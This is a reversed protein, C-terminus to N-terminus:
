QTYQTMGEIALLTKKMALGSRFGTLKGNKGIVRHCPIVILVPNRGIANAVARVSTPRGIKNAVDQYTWVDGYPITELMQWVERQLDTGVIDLPVRFTKLTGNFYADFAQTYTAMAADSQTLSMARKKAADLLEAADNGVYCLGNDTAAIYLTDNPVTLTTYYM